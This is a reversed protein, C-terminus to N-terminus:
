VRLKFYSLDSGDVLDTKEDLKTKMLTIVSSHVYAVGGLIQAISAIQDASLEPTPLPHNGADLYTLAWSNSTDKFGKANVADFMLMKSRQRWYMLGGILLGGAVAGGAGILVYKAIEGVSM